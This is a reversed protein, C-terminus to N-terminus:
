SYTNSPIPTLKSTSRSTPARIHPTEADKKGHNRRRRRSEMIAIECLIRTMLRFRDVTEDM